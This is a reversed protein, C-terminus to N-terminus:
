SLTLNLDLKECFSPIQMYNCALITKLITTNVKHHFIISNFYWSTICIKVFESNQLTIRMLIIQFIWIQDSSAVFKAACNIMNEMNM